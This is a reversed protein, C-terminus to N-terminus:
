SQAGMRQALVSVLYTNMSVGEQEARAVGVPHAPEQTCASCLPWVRWGHGTQTDPRRVRPGHKVM